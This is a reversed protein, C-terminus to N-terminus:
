SGKAMKRAKLYAALGLLGVIWGLGGIIDRLSVEQSSLAMEALQARLPALAKEVRKQVLAGLQKADIGTAAKPEAAAAPKPEDAPSESEQGLDAAKLEYTARHGAGADLVVTLPPQAKPVPVSFAGEKNTKTEALVKGAVDLVKIKQNQLKGGGSVYGEGKIQGGEVYAYVAVRHAHALGAPVLLLCFVVASLVLRM